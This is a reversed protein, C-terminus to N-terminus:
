PPSFGRCAAGCGDSGV